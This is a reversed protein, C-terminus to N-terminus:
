ANELRQNKLYAFVSKDGIDPPIAQFAKRLAFVTFLVAWLALLIKEGMMPLFGLLHGLLLLPVLPTLVKTELRNFCAAEKFFLGTLAAFTFGIGLITIPHQYVSLAFPEAYFHAVVAAAIAGVIWFAQLARHLVVMYIHISLLSVGLGICFLTYLPSLAQIMAPDNGQWLVITSGIAFSLAAIMLGARYIMVGQRDGQDITFEGFQGQYIIPQQTDM